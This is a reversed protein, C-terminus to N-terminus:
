CWANRGGSVYLKPWRGPCGEISVRSGSRGLLISAETENPTLIDVAALFAPSLERAAPRISCTRTGEERALKLAAEVFDLPSELQFLAFRAGRFVPRMAEVDAAGLACQRRVGGRHFEPRGSGGLDAGSGHAASEDRTGRQCGRRGRVPESEISRRFSDYGVRGIMRTTVHECGTQRRASGSKRGKRGPVDPLQPGSPRERRPCSSSPVVFDMNLSGVVVIHEM